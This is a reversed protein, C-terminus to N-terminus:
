KDHQAVRLIEKAYEVQTSYPVLDYERTEVYTSLFMDVKNEARDLIGMSVEDMGVGYKILLYSNYKYTTEMVRMAENATSLSNINKEANVLATAVAMYRVREDQPFSMYGTIKDGSMERRSVEPVDSSDIEQFVEVETNKDLERIADKNYM